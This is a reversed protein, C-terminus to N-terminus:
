GAKCSALLKLAKPEEPDYKLSKNLELIAKKSDSMVSSYVYGSYYYALAPNYLDAMTHLYKIAKEPYSDKIAVARKYYLKGKREPDKIKDIYEGAEEDEEIEILISVIQSYGKDFDPKIKVAEILIDLAEDFEEEYKLELAQNYMHIHRIEKCDSRESITKKVANLEAWYKKYKVYLKDYESRSIKGSMKKRIEEFEAKKSNLEKRLLMCKTLINELEDDSSTNNFIDEDSSKEKKKKAIEKKVAIIKNDLIKTNSIDIKENCTIKEESQQMNTKKTKVIGKKGEKIEIINKGGVVDRKIQEFHRLKGSEDGILIDFLGDNDLDIIIPPSYYNLGVQNNTEKADTFVYSDKKDQESHVILANMRGVVLNKLGDNDPDAFTPTLRFGYDFDNFSDTIHEFEESNVEVQEYHILNSSLTGILMDILGDNDIDCFVPTPDKGAEINSFRENKLIFKGSKSKDQEYHRINGYYEGLFMDLLGDNDIDYFGPSSFFEIEFDNFNDSKLQMATLNTAAQEYHYLKGSLNAIVMDFLGDGDFDNFAWSESDNYENIPEAKLVSRESYVFMTVIQLVVLLLIIKKM